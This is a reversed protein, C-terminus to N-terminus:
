RAGGLKNKTKAERFAKVLYEQMRGTFDDEDEGPMPCAGTITQYIFYEDNDDPAKNTKLGANVKRWHRVVAIWEDAIDTLVNLRARVDEGRKTDHTSTANMTHPWNLQRHTMMQHFDNITIGFSDPSDGVENHNIFRNYTYMLTDEVGKAMLPGSFQMLRQYFCLARDNYEIDNGQTNKLLVKEILNIAPIQDHNDKRINQFLTHLDETEEVNLPLHNGYFRYVPFWILISAIASKIQQESVDSLDTKTVLDLSLFLQTLNELEGGMYENLILSKKDRISEAVNEKKDIIDRYFKSFAKKSDVNTFLNNVISLFDYGTNGQVPWNGPFAEGSELIKEVIIYTEEGALRRLKELYGQPDYLGDIHDVRLGQLIGDTLLTKILQHYHDFVQPHHINLCILGNM